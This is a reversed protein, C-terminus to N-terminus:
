EAAQAADVAEYRLKLKKVKDMNIGEVRLVRHDGKPETSHLFGIDYLHADGPKMLYDRLRAAKGPETDTPRALCDWDTMVTEGFAIGYIVWTPGHDHPAGGKSGFSRYILIAFGLEPDEYLVNRGAAGEATYTSVFAPDSLAQKVLDVVKERGPTGPQATLAARCDAAFKELTIAM